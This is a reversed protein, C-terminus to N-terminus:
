RGGGNSGVFAMLVSTHDCRRLELRLTMGLLAGVIHIRDTRDPDTEVTAPRLGRVLWTQEVQALGACLVVVERPRVVAWSQEVAYALVRLADRARALEVPVVPAREDTATRRAM